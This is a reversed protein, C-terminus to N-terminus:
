HYIHCIIECYSILSIWCGWKQLEWCQLVVFVDAFWLIHKNQGDSPCKWPQVLSSWKIQPVFLATFIFGSSRCRYYWSTWWVRVRQLCEHLDTVKVARLPAEGTQGSPIQLQTHHGAPCRESELVAAGGSLWLYQGSLRQYVETQLSASHAFSPLIRVASSILRVHPKGTMPPCVAPIMWM